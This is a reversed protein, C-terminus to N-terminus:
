TFTQLWTQKAFHQSLQTLFPPQNRVGRSRIGPEQKRVASGQNM